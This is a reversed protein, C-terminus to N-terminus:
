VHKLSWTGPQGFGIHFSLYLNVKSLYGLWFSKQMNFYRPHHGLIFSPSELMEVDGGNYVRENGTELVWGM